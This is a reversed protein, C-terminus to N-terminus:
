KKETLGIHGHTSDWRIDDRTIGAELAAAVTMGDVYKEFRNFSSTGAKKPNVLTKLHIVTTADSEKRTAKSVKVPKADADTPAAVVHADVIDKALTPADVEMLADLKREQYAVDAVSELAELAARDAEDTIVDIAMVAPEAVFSAPEPTGVSTSRRDDGRDKRAAWIRKVASARESFKKLNSDTYANYFAVLETLKLSNLFKQAQANTMAAFANIQAKLENTM